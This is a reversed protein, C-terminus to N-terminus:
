SRALAVAPKHRRARTLARVLELREPEIAMLAELAAVMRPGDGLRRAAKVVLELMAIRQARDSLPPPEALVTLAEANGKRRVYLSALNLAVQSRRGADARPEAEHALVAALAVMSLVDHRNHLAIGALPRPEADRLWAFWCSPALSGPMDHERVFGLVQAELTQLRVDQWLGKYVSRSVHLLDLHPRLKLESEEKSCMRHMVMRNQLVSLDFSKGNFSVLYRSRQVRDWVLDLLAAEEDHDRLLVQEVQLTDGVFFGLGILFALTGSGHELGTAEIDLFLADRADFGELRADGTMRELHRYDAGLARGLAIDGHREAPAHHTTALWTSGFKTKVLQGPLAEALSPPPGSEVVLGSWSTAETTRSRAARQDLPGSARRPGDGGGREMRALAARLEAIVASGAGECRADGTPAERAEPLPPPPVFRALKDGLRM